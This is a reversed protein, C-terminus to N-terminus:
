SQRALKDRRAKETEAYRRAYEDREEAAKQAAVYERHESASMGRLVALGDELNSAADIADWGRHFAEAAETQGQERLLAYADHPTLEGANVAGWALSALEQAEQTKTAVDQQRAALEQEVLSPILKEEVGIYCLYEPSAMDSM